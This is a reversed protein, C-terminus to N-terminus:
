RPGPPRQLPALAAAARGDLSRAVFGASRPPGPLRAWEIWPEKGAEARKVRMTRRAWSPVAPKGDPGPPFVSPLRSDPGIEDGDRLIATSGAAIPADLWAIEAKWGNGEPRATFVVEVPDGNRTVGARALVTGRGDAVPEVDRLPALVVGDGGAESRLFFWGGDYAFSVTGDERLSVPLVGFLSRDDYSIAAEVAALGPASPGARGAVRWPSGTGERTAAVDRVTPVRGYRTAGDVLFSRARMWPHEPGIAMGPVDFTAEGFPVYLSVGGLWPTAPPVKTRTVLAAVAKSAEAAAARVEANPHSALADLFRRADRASAFTAPLGLRSASDDPERASLNAWTRPSSLAAACTSQWVAPDDRGLTEPLARGLRSLGELVQPVRAMDFLAFAGIASPGPADLAGGYSRVVLDGLADLDPAPDAQAARVLAALDVSNTGVREQAAAVRRAWPGLEVLGDLCASQCTDLVLLDVPGVAHARDSLALALEPFTLDPARPRFASARAPDAARHADSAIGLHGDGHGSIVLCLRDSPAYAQVRALVSALVEPSGTDAEPDDGPGGALFQVAGPRFRLFQGGTWSPLSGVAGGKGDYRDVFAIVHARNTTVAAAVANLTEVAIPELDNDAAVFLLVTWPRRDEASDARTTSLGLCLAFVGALAARRRM